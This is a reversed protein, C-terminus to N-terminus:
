ASAFRPILAPRTVLPLPNMQTHLTVFKDKGSPDPLLKVYRKLGPKNAEAIFDAPGYYMRFLQRTGMLIPVADGTPVFKRVTVSNDANLNTAQGVYEEFVVGKFNFATRLDNRLPEQISVYYQYAQIISPHSTLSAFFEPSCLVRISSYTEGLSNIEFYRKISEIFQGINASTNSFPFSFVTQTLGFNAFMDILTTGDADLVLGKLAGMRYYELTIDHKAAAAETKMMVLDELAETQYEEGFRRVQQIEDVTIEDDHEVHLISFNLMKRKPPAGVTAGNGGRVSTQLLNLIGNKYELAVNISPVSTEHFAALEGVRGYMNPIVNIADTLTLTRFGDGSFVDILAM